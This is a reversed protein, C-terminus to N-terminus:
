LKKHDFYTKTARDVDSRIVDILEKISNFHAEDRLRDVLFVTLHEGYIEKNFDLIYTEISLEHQNFTPNYGVNTLSHYRKGNYETESVYVGPKILTMQSSIMFNATPYGLERGLQKGKKIIGSVSYPRGLLKEVQKVDGHRLHKRILSSSIKEGDIEVPELVKLIYGYTESLRELLKSDGKAGKGFRFDFGVTLLKVEMGNILYHLVFDEADTTMIAKNFEILVLYDVDLAEILRIKDEVPILRLSKSDPNTLERPHNSYTFVVSKVGLKKCADVHAKILVQHGIHLGDFTGLVIGVEKHLDAIEHIADFILM